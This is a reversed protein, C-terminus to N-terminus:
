PKPRPATPSAMPVMMKPSMMPPTTVTTVTPQRPAMVTATPANQRPVMITTTYKQPTKSSDQHPVMTTTTYKPQTQPLMTTTTVTSKRPVLIVTTQEGKPKAIETSLEGKPKVTVTTLGAEPKLIETTPNGEPKVVVTTPQREPQLIVVTPDSKPKMIVTRPDGNPKLNVTDPTASVGPQYVGLSKGTAGDHNVKLTVLSGPSQVPLSKAAGDHPGYVEVERTFRAKAIEGSLCFSHMADPYSGSLCQKCEDQRVLDVIFSSGSPACSSYFMPTSRGARPVMTLLTKSGSNELLPRALTSDLCGKETPLQGSPCVTLATTISGGDRAVATTWVTQGGRSSLCGGYIPSFAGGECPIPLCANGQGPQTGPPCITCRGDYLISPPPCQSPFAGIVGGALAKSRSVIGAGANPYAGPIYVTGAGPNSVGPIYVIVQDPQVPKSPVPKYCGNAGQQYGRECDCTRTEIYGAGGDAPSQFGVIIHGGDCSMCTGSADDYTSGADCISRCNNTINQRTTGPVCIKCSNDFDIEDAGCTICQLAGGPHRSVQAFNGTDDVCIPACASYSTGAGFPAWGAPCNPIAAPTVCDGNDNPVLG